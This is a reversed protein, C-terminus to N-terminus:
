IWVFINGVYWRTWLCIGACKDHFRRARLTFTFKEVGCVRGMGNTRLAMANHYARAWCWCVFPFLVSFTHFVYFHAIFLCCYVRMGYGNFSRVRVFAACVCCCWSSGLRNREHQHSHIENKIGNICPERRPLHTLLPKERENYDLEM